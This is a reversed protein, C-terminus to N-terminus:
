KLLKIMFLAFAYDMQLIEVSRLIIPGDQLTLLLWFKKTQLRVDQFVASIIIIIKVNNAFREHGVRAKIQKLTTSASVSVGIPVSEDDFQEIGDLLIEM